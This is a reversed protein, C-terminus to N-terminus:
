EGDNLYGNEVLDELMEEIEEDNLEVEVGFEVGNEDFYTVTYDFIETEVEYDPYEYPHYCSIINEELPVDDGYEDEFYREYDPIDMYTDETDMGFVFANTCKELCLLFRILEPNSKDVYVEEEAFEDEDGSVYTIVIKYENRHIDQEIKDIIKLEM